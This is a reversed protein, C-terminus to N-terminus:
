AFGEIWDRLVAEREATAAMLGILMLESPYRGKNEPHKSLDSLFSTFAERFRTPGSDLNLINFARQKAWRLHEPRTM